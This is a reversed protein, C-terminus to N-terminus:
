VRPPNAVTVRAQRQVTQLFDYSGKMSVSIYLNQGTLSLATRLTLQEWDHKEAPTLAMYNAQAQRFRDRQFQQGPSPPKTPPAKPFEVKRGARDTYITSPGLDGSVILGLLTAPYGYPM